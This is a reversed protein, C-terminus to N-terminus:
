TLENQGNQKQALQQHLKDKRELYISLNEELESIVTNIDQIDFKYNKIERKIRRAEYSNPNYRPSQEMTSLVHQLAAIGPELKFKKIKRLLDQEARYEAIVGGTLQSKYEQDQEHCYAQGFGAYTLDDCGPYEVICNMLGLEEDWDYKYNKLCLNNYM